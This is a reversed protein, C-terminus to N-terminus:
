SSFRIPLKIIFETGVGLQSSFDIDGMQEQLMNYVISLGLGTGTGVEKTTFFPDFIKTKINEPIGPGNDKISIFIKNNKHYTTIEIEGEKEIAQVANQLLNMFVQNLKGPYGEIKPLNGFAKKIKIHYKYQNYLITLALNINEHVDIEELKDTNHSFQRLSNVINVTRDVGTEINDSVRVISSKIFDLDLEKELEDIDENGKTNAYQKRYADLIKQLDKNFHRMGQLGSSIFTIPNNIEHAIGAILLGLSAMKESQVLQKQAMKLKDLTAELEEKQTALESKAEVNTRNVKFIIFLLVFAFTAMLVLLFIMRNRFAIQNEKKTLILDKDTILYEKAKIAANLSDMLVLQKDIHNKHDQLSDSTNIIRLNLESLNKQNIVLKNEQLRLRESLENLTSERESIETSQKEIIKIKSSIEQNQEKIFKQQKTISDAQLQLKHQLQSANNEEIELRNRTQRYLERIDIESGKLEIIDPHINFNEFILNTRNFEFSVMGRKQNTILNFMFDKSMDHNETFFLINEGRIHESVVPIIEKYGEDIYLINIKTNSNYSTTPIIQIKQNHIGSLAAYTTFSNILKPNDSIVMIKFDNDIEQPWSIYNCLKLTLVAKLDEITRNKAYGTSTCYFTLFVFFILFSPKRLM